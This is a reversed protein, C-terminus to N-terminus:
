DERLVLAPYETHYAVSSSMRPRFADRLWHHKRAVVIIGQAKARRAAEYIGTEVDQAVILHRELGPFHADAFQLFEQAPTDGHTGEEVHAVALQGGSQKIFSHIWQLAKPNRDDHLDSAYLWKVPVGEPWASRSPVILVPQKSAHLVSVANSGLVVESWGSAGQSAMVVMSDPHDQARQHLEQALGNYACFGECKLEADGTFETLWEAMDEECREKIALLLNDTLAESRYPLQYTHIFDIPANLAKALQKAVPLAARSNASFDTPFLVRNM